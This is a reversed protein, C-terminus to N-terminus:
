NDTGLFRWLDVAFYAANAFANFLGFFLVPDASLSYLVGVMGFMMVSTLSAIYYMWKLIRLRNWKIADSNMKKTLKIIEYNFNIIQQEFSM